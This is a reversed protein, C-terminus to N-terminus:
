NILHDSLERLCFQWYDSIYKLHCQFININKKESEAQLFLARSLALWKTFHHKTYCFRNQTFTHILDKMFELNNNLNSKLQHKETSIFNQPPYPFQIIQCSKFIIIKSKNCLLVLILFLRKLSQNKFYSKLFSNITWLM